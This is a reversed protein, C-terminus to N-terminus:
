FKFGVRGEITRPAGYFESDAFGAFFFRQTLFTKNTLNRGILAVYIRDGPLDYRINANVLAYDDQRERQVDTFNPFLVESQYTVEGRASLRGASGLSTSYEAGLTFSIEPSLPLRLTAPTTTGPLIFNKLESHLYAGNFDVSFGSFPRAIATAEVGYISATSANNITTTFGTSTFVVSRLQLDTYDYYFGALDLEVRGDAFSNKTGAEYAWIKEPRFTSASTALNVGGAKFGRTASAYIQSGERPEYKVLLRPAFGDDDVAATTVFPAPVLLPVALVSNGSQKEKTYRAGALVSLKDGLPVTLEGYAAYSTNRNRTTQDSFLYPTPDPFDADTEASTNTSREHGYYLGATWNVEDRSGGALQFEQSFYESRFRTDTFAILGGAGDVDVIARSKYDVYGTISKLTAGGLDLALTGSLLVGEQRNRPPTDVNIRRPSQRGPAFSAFVPSTPDNSGGFGVSGRNLSYQATLDVSLKDTLDYRVRARGGAFNRDDIEGGVPNINKTYGDDNAYAGSVRVGGRDGLPVSVGGQATVLNRSGYGIWGDAGFQTGPDRSVINIAGGTANRGYLTGQPGKLVEIRGPDFLETIAFSTVPIYVGDLSVAVSPSGSSINTGVGRLTIRSGGGGEAIKLSPTEYQLDSLTNIAQGQLAEGAFVNLSAPVDRALEERRRATVVIEGGSPTQTEPAQAVAQDPVQEVSTDSRAPQPAQAVAYEPLILLITGAAVSSLWRDLRRRM